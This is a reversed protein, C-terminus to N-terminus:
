RNPTKEFKLWIDAVRIQPSDKTDLIFKEFDIKNLSYGLKQLEIEIEKFLKTSMFAKDFSTQLPLVAPDDMGGSSALADELERPMEEKYFSLLERSTKSSVEGIIRIFVLARNIEAQELVEAFPAGKGHGYYLEILTHRGRTENKGLKFDEAIAFVSLLGFFSALLIIKM